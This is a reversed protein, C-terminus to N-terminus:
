DTDTATVAVGDSLDVATSTASTVIMLQMAIPAADTDVVIVLDGARMGLDYGNTFYGSVRVATAADTSKYFWLRGGGGIGQAILAPPNDTSYAM